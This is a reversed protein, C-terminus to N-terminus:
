CATISLQRATRKSINTSKQIKRTVLYCLAIFGPLQTYLRANAVMCFFHSM